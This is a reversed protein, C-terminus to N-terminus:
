KIYINASIRMVECVFRVISEPLFQSKSDFFVDM